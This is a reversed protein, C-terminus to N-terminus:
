IKLDMQDLVSFTKVGINKSKITVTSEIKIKKSAKSNNKRLDFVNSFEVERQKTLLLSFEHSFLYNLRCRSENIEIINQHANAGSEDLVLAGSNLAYGIIEILDKDKEKKFLLSGKPEPQFEKGVINDKFRKGILDVLDYITCIGKFDGNVAITNLLSKQTEFSRRIASVQESIPIVGSKNLSSVLMNMLSIMMRPNYEVSKCLNEFGVYLNPPRKRGKKFYYNRIQAIFKVKRITPNKNKDTYSLIKNIEISNKELYAGFTPDRDSLEQFEKIVDMKDPSEFYTTVENSLGSNQFVGGCLKRSFELGEKDKIGTLRILGLDQDGMSSEPSKTIVVNKHYPSLSLKFIVDEPGGRMANVLPQIVEEPALELEDFLFCWKENKEDLFSNIIRISPDLITILDGKIIDPVNDTKIGAKLEAIYSSINQKKNSLSSELSRLSSIRPEVCWLLSLEQVLELEDNRDLKKVKYQSASNKAKNVRFELTSCLREIVHYNFYAKLVDEEVPNTFGEKKLSDFQEKWFRDTPIFVGTFGVKKRYYDADESGWLCLAEAQLMRMLTTKGSGRPGILISNNPSALKTFSDSIIFGECLARLSITRANFAGHINQNKNLM